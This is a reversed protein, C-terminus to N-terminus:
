GTLKIIDPLYNLIISIISVILFGAVFFGFTFMLPVFLASMKSNSNPDSTHWYRFFSFWVIGFIMTAISLIIFGILFYSM